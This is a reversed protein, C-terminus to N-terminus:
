SAALPRWSSLDRCWMTDPLCVACPVPCAGCVWEARWGTHQVFSSFVPGEFHSSLAPIARPAVKVGSCDWRWRSAIDARQEQTLGHLLPPLQAAPQTDTCVPVGSQYTNNFPGGGEGSRTHEDGYLWTACGGAQILIGNDCTHAPTCGAYFAAQGNPASAWCTSMNSVVPIALRPPAAGPDTYAKVDERSPVVIGLVTAATFAVRDTNRQVADMLMKYRPSLLLTAATTKEEALEHNADPLSTSVLLFFTKTHSHADIASCVKICGGDTGLQATWARKDGFELTFPSASHQPISASLADLQGMVHTDTLPAASTPALRYLSTALTPRTTLVSPAPHTNTALAVFGDPEGNLNVHATPMLSWQEVADGTPLQELAAIAASAAVSM